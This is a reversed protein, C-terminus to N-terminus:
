IDDLLIFSAWFYPNSMNESNQVTRQASKFADYRNKGELLNSYFSSMMLQTAKDSVNWLSLILTHAGAKKFARQLGFVGDEKIEGLGTQCASLVILDLNQFNLMSIEKATLIGNEVKNPIRRGRLINNAGSFMLGSRNMSTEEMSSISLKEDLFSKLVKPMAKEKDSFYFGHTAIHILTNNQGSLAKFSEETGETDQYLTTPINKSILLNNIITTEEKAGSLPAISLGRSMLSDVAQENIDFLSRQIDVDNLAIDNNLKNEYVDHRTTMEEIDMDYTLGGYLTAKKIPINQKPQALLKTSSLRHIEYLDSIYHEQNYKLYEVGLQHIIGSPSFYLNKIDKGLLQIIPNWVLKGIRPNNYVENIGKPSKMAEYISINNTTEKQLDRMTFLEIMKPHEWEKKLCLALYIKDGNDLDMDVFEIAADEDRLSEKINQYTIKLNSTFDGFEKSDLVIEREIADAQKQMNKIVFSDNKYNASHYIKDIQRHIKELQEFRAYLKKDGTKMLLKKFDIESNLLIGKTFLVSNYADAVLQSDKGLMFAFIPAIKFIYSKTNWYLERGTTTLHSFNNKVQQTQITFAKEFYQKVNNLDQKVLYFNALNYYLAVLDPHNQDLKNILLSLSENSYQIASDISDNVFYYMALNGLVKPYLSNITDGSQKYMNVTQLGVELAKIYDKQKYYYISLNNLARAQISSADHLSQLIEISQKCLQFANDHKGKNFYHSSLDNLSIALNLSDKAEIYKDRAKEEFEIAKDYNGNEAHIWAQESLSKGFTLYDNDDTPKKILNDYLHALEDAKELNGKRRYIASLNSICSIYDQSSEAHHQVYIKEAKTLSELGLDFRETQKCLTGLHNLINAYRLSQTALSDTEYIARAEKSFYIAESYDKLNALRISQNNLIDAYQINNEGFAKKGCQLAKLTISNAKAINGVQTYYFVLNNLSLAYEQSKKDEYKLAREALRVAYEFDEKNKGRQSYFSATNQLNVAFFHNKVGYRRRIFDSAENSYTIASDFDKKNAYFVAKKSIATGIMGFDSTHKQYWEIVEDELSIADDYNGQENQLIAIYDLLQPYFDEEKRLQNSGIHSKSLLFLSLAKYHNGQNYLKKAEKFYYQVSDKEKASISSIGFFIFLTLIWKM